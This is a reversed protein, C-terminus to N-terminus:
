GGEYVYLSLMFVCFSGGGGIFVRVVKDFYKCFKSHVARQINGCSIKLMSIQMERINYVDTSFLWNFVSFHVQITCAFHQDLEALNTSLKRNNAVCVVNTLVKHM